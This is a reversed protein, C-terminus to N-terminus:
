QCHQKLREKAEDAMEAIDLHLAIERARRWHACAKADPRHVPHAARGSQCAQIGRLGDGANIHAYALSPAGQKGFFRRLHTIESLAFGYAMRFEALAQDFNLQSICWKGKRLHTDSAVELM